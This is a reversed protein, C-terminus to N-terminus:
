NPPHIFITRLLLGFFPQNNGLLNHSFDWLCLLVACLVLYFQPYTFITVQQNKPHCCHPNESASGGPRDSPARHCPSLTQHCLFRACPSFGGAAGPLQTLQVKTLDKKKKYVTLGTASSVLVAVNEATGHAALPKAREPTGHQHGLWVTVASRSATQGSCGGHKHPTVRM